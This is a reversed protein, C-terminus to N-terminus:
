ARMPPNKVDVISSRKVYACQYCVNTGCLPRSFGCLCKLANVSTAVKATKVAPKVASPPIIDPVEEARKYRKKGLKFHAAMRTVYAVPLCMIKAITTASIHPNKWLLSLENKRADSWEYKDWKWRKQNTMKSELGLRHAKGIVAFKTKGIINGIEECSISMNPWLECLKDTQWKKWFEVPKM